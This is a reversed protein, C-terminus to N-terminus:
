FFLYNSNINQLPFWYCIVKIFFFHFYYVWNEEKILFSYVMSLLFINAHLRFIQHMEIFFRGYVMWKFRSGFCFSRFIRNIFQLYSSFTVCWIDLPTWMCVLISCYSIMYLRSLVDDCLTAYIMWLIIVFRCLRMQQLRQGYHFNTRGRACAQLWVVYTRPMM